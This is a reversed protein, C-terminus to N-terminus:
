RLNTVRATDDAPSVFEDDATRIVVADETRLVGDSAQPVYGAKM